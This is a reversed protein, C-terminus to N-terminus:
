NFEYGNDPPVANVATELFTKEAGTEDPALM